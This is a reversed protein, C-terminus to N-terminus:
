ILFLYDQKLYHRFSEAPLTGAGLQRVFEHQTYAQWDQACSQKLQDFFSM